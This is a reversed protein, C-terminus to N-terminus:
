VHGVPRGFLNKQRASRGRVPTHRKIVRREVDEARFRYRLEVLDDRRELSVLLDLNDDHVAGDISEEQRVVVEERLGLIGRSKGWAGRAQLLKRVHKHPQTTRSDNRDHANAPTGRADAAFQREGAVHTEAV